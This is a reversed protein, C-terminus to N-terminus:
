KSLDVLLRRPAGQYLDLQKERSAKLIKEKDKDKSLKIIIHRPAARKLNSREPTRQAEIQINM